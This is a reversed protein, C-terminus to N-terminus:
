EFVINRIEQITRKEHSPETQSQKIRRVQKPNPKSHFQSIPIRIATGVTVAQIAGSRIQIYIHNKSCRLIGALESPTVFQGMKSLMDVRERLEINDQELKLIREEITM